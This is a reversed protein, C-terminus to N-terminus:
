RWGRGDYRRDRDYRHDYDGYASRDGHHGYGHLPYVVCGSLLFVAGLAIVSLYRM